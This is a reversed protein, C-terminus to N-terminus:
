FQPGKALNDEKVDQKHDKMMPRAEYVCNVVGARNEKTFEGKLGIYYIQTVDEGFNTPFHLSLHYVSSFTVVKTAYEIIGEDDQVLEFEQFYNQKEFFVQKKVRQWRLLPL